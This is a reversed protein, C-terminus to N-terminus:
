PLLVSQFATFASYGPIAFVIRRLKPALVKARAGGIVDRFRHAVVSPDKRRGGCGWAGLVLTELGMEQAASLVREIGDVWMDSRPPAAAALVAFAPPIAAAGYTAYDPGPGVLVRVNEVAIVGQHVIPYMGQKQAARLAEGLTTRRCLEDEQSMTGSSRQSPVKRASMCLVGMNKADALDQVADLTSQRVVDISIDDTHVADDDADTAGSPKKDVFLHVRVDAMHLAARAATNQMVWARHQDTGQAPM